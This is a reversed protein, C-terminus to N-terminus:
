PKKIKGKPIVATTPPMPRDSTGEKPPLHGEETEQGDQQQTARRQAHHDGTTGLEL